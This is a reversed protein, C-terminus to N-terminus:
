HTGLVCQFYPSFPMGQDDSALNGKLSLGQEIEFVNGISALEWSKPMPGIETEKKPEDKLGRTFLTRMTANKLAIAIQESKIETIMLRQIMELSDSIASQEEPEFEPFPLELIVDKPVRQRGTTGEMREAVHHRIDPHLLYFFLLRQDHGMM